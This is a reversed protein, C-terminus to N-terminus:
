HGPGTWAGKNTRAIFGLSVTGNSPDYPSNGSLGALVQCPFTPTIRTPGTGMACWLYGMTRCPNTANTQWSRCAVYEEYKYPVGLRADPRGTAQNVGGGMTFPDFPCQSMYSIPTTLLSQSVYQAVVTGYVTTYTNVCAANVYDQYCLPPMGYDSTYAEIATAQARLNAMSGTIKARSQAELFNPIAILALIAIIAIVILLEILTFARRVAGASIKENRRARTRCM